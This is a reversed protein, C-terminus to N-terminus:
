LLYLLNASLVLLVIHFNNVLAHIPKFVINGIALVVVEVTTGALTFVMDTTAGVADVTTFAMERHVAADKNVAHPGSSGSSGILGVSVLSVVGGVILTLLDSTSMVHHFSIRM